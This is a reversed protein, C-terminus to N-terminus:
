YGKKNIKKSCTQHHIHGCVNVIISRPSNDTLIPIECIGCPGYEPINSDSSKIVSFDPVEHLIDEPLYKLINLAITKLQKNCNPYVQFIDSNEKEPPKTSEILTIDEMNTLEEEEIFLNEVNPPNKINSSDEQNEMDGKLVRAKFM